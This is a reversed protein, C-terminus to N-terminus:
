PQYSVSMLREYTTNGGPVAQPSLTSAMTGFHTALLLEKFHARERPLMSARTPVATPPSM